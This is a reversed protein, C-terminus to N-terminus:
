PFLMELIDIIKEGIGEFMDQIIDIVDSLECKGDKDGLSDISDMLLKIEGGFLSEGRIAKKICHEIVKKALIVSIIM